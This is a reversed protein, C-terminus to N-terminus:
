WLVPLGFDAAQWNVFNNFRAKTIRAFWNLYETSTWIFGTTRKYGSSFIGVACNAYSGSKILLPAGSQGPMADLESLIYNSHTEAFAWTGSDEFQYASGGRDGPYGSVWGQATPTLYSDSVYCYGMWGAVRGLNRDLTIMGYDYEWNRDSTWGSCSWYHIGWAEGFPQYTGNLGPVVRISAAWGGHKNDYVCHGATMVARDGCLSGSGTCTYGDPFTIFLKCVNSYPFRTTDYVQTRDDRSGIIYRSPPAYHRSFTKVNPAVHDVEVKVLGASQATWDYGPLAHDVSRHAEAQENPSLERGFPEPQYEVGSYDDPNVALIARPDDPLLPYESEPGEGASPISCGALVTFILIFASCSLITDLKNKRNIM